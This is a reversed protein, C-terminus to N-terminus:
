ELDKTTACSINVVILSLVLTALSSINNAPTMDCAVLASAFCPLPLLCQGGVAFWIRWGHPLKIGM